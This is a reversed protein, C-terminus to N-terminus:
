RLLVFFFKGGGTKSGVSTSVRDNEIPKFNQDAMSDM